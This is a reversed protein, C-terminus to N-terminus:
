RLLGDPPTENKYVLPFEGPEGQADCDAKMRYELMVFVNGTWQWLGRMGCDGPGRGLSYSSLLNTTPDFSDFWIGEEAQWGGRYSPTAFLKLDYWTKQAVYVSYFHNYAGRYCPLLYLTKEDGLDYVYFPDDNIDFGDCKDPRASDQAILDAPIADITVEEALAPGVLALLAVALFHKV